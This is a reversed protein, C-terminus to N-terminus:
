ALDYTFSKGCGWKSSGGNSVDLNAQGKNFKKTFLRCHTGWGAGDMELEAAQFQVCRGNSFGLLSLLKSFLGAKLNIANQKTAYAACLSADFPGPFSRQGLCHKPQNHLKNGCDQPNGYGPVTPPSADIGKEYGNSGVIVVQFDDRWQGINTAASKEVSSGFISCKYQAISAPNTCSCQDPNWAPDREIFVNFGYCLDTEDCYKACGAVDYSELIKYALYSNSQVSASLNKFTQVYGTPTKAELAMKSYVPNKQFAEVTDPTTPPGYAAPQPACPDLPNIFGCFTDVEIATPCAPDSTFAWTNTWSVPTCTSPVVNTPMSTVAPTTTTPVPTVFPTTTKQTQYGEKKPCYGLFCFTREELSRKNVAPATTAGSAAAEATAVAVDQNYIGKESAPGVGVPAGRTM